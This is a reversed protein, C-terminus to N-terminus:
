KLSDLDLANLREKTYQYGIDFMDQARRNDLLGFNQLDPPEIFLDCHKHLLQAKAKVSLMFCRLSIHLMTSLKASSAPPSINIAIIREVKGILPEIPVNSIVGGDVYWHGDMEVPEFIVPISASAKVITPLYGKDFLSLHGESINTAAIILEIPLDEIQQITLKKALKRELGQLSLFGKLPIKLKTYEFITDDKLMEFIELPTINQALFAGVISGASVATIVDARISKEHLAHLVGLHAYGRSGGGGLAIGIKKM